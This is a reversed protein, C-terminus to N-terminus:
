FIPFIGFTSSCIADGFCSFTRVDQSTNIRNYKHMYSSESFGSIGCKGGAKRVLLPPLLSLVLQLIDPELTTFLCPGGSLPRARSLVLSGLLFGKFNSWPFNFGCSAPLSRSSGRERQIMGFFSTTSTFKNAFYLTSPIYIKLPETTALLPGPQTQTPPDIGPLLFSSSFVEGSYFNPSNGQPM